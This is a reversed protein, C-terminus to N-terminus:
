YKFVSIKIFYVVVYVFFFLFIIVMWTIIIKHAIVRWKWYLASKNSNAIDSLEKQAVKIKTYSHYVLIGIFTPPTLLIVLMKLINQM